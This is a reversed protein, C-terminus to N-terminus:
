SLNTTSKAQMKQSSVKSSVNELSSEAGRKKGGLAVM